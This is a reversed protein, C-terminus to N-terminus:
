SGLKQKILWLLMALIVALMKIDLDKKLWQKINVLGFKM